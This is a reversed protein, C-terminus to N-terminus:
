RLMRELSLQAQRAYVEVPEAAPYHILEVSVRANSGTASIASLFGSLDLRGQGPWLRHALTEEVTAPGSFHIAADSIQVGKILKGPLRAIADLALGSRFVHWSDLVLGANDAGAADILALASDLDPISSWPLFELRCELDYSAAHRCLRKFQQKLRPMDQGAGVDAVLVAQAGLTRAVEFLTQEEEIAAAEDAQAWAFAGELQDVRINNRALQRAAAKMDCGQQQLVMLWLQVWGVGTGAVAPLLTDLEPHGLTCGSIVWNNRPMLM